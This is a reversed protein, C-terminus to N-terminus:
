GKRAKLRDLIGRFVASAAPDPLGAAADLAKKRFEGAICEAKDAYGGEVVHKRIRGAPIRRRSILREVVPDKEERALILPLTPIGAKLDSGPNKGMRRRDGTYDLIDDEIQFAMGYQIGLDYLSDRLPEGCRGIVSGAYCALGFLEATKGQIRSYYRERSIKLRGEGDDQDIESLCLRNLGDTLVSMMDKEYEGAALKLSQGLLYDGALVAKKIGLSQHLTRVGRRAPADDLIDDHVLSAMHLLEIAAAASHAGESHRDGCSAALLLFAPRLMKGPTGILRGLDGRIMGPSNEVVKRLILSVKELEVAM